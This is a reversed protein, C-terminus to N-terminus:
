IGGLGVTIREHGALDCISKVQSYGAAVFIDRVSKGQKFGHEILVCGSSKLYAKAEKVIERIAQLGDQGSVLAHIPEFSLSSAYMQWEDGAIYPPNSVIVDFDKESLAACWNGLAFSVHQLSFRQANQKAVLLAEASIDSLHV